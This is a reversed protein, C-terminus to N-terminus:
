GRRGGQVQRLLTDLEVVQKLIERGTEEDAADLQNTLQQKRQKIYQKTLQTQLRDVEYDLELAEVDGYLEDRQLVLIKAYDQLSQMQEPSLGEAMAAMEGRFDPNAQLYRFIYKAQGLSFMGETLLTVKRRTAPHSLLLALLHDQTRRYELQEKDSQGLQAPTPM